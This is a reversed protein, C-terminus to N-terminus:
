VLHIVVNRIIVLFSVFPIITMLVMFLLVYGMTVYDVDYGNKPDFCIGWFNIATRVYVLAIFIICCAILVTLFAKFLDFGNFPWLTTLFYSVVAALLVNLNNASRIFSNIDDINDKIWSPKAVPKQKEETSGPKDPEGPKSTDSVEAPSKEREYNVM